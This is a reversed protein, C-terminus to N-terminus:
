AWPAEQQVRRLDQVGPQHVDRVGYHCARVQTEGPLVPEQGNRVPLRRRLGTRKHLSVVEGQRCELRRRRRELQRELNQVSQSGVGLSTRFRQGKARLLDASDSDGGFRTEVCFGWEIIHRHNWMKLPQAYWGNDQWWVEGVKVAQNHTPWQPCDTASVQSANVYGLFEVREAELAPAPSDDAAESNGHVANAKRDIANLPQQPELATALTLVGAIVVILAAKGFM